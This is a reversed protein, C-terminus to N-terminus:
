QSKHSLCWSFTNGKPQLIWPYWVDRTKFNYFNAPSIRGGFCSFRGVPRHNWGKWGLDLFRGLGDWSKGEPFSWMDGVWLVKSDIIKRSERKTPYRVRSPLWKHVKRAGLAQQKAFPREVQFPLHVDCCHTTAVNHRPHKWQFSSWSPSQIYPPKGDNKSYCGPPKHQSTLASAKNSFSM